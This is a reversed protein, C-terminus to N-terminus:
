AQRKKAYARNYMYAYIVLTLVSLYDMMARFPTEVWTLKLEGTVSAEPTILGFIPDPGIKVPVGGVSATWGPFYFVPLPFDSDGAHKEPVQKVTVPLYDFLSKTQQEKLEAGTLYDADTYHDYGRPFFFPYAYIILVVAVLIITPSSFKRPYLSLLLSIAMVLPLGAWVIFRWPFQVYALPPLLTWVFDSKFHSLFLLGGTLVLLGSILWIETGAQHPRFFFLFVLLIALLVTHVHGVMFPMEDWAEGWLSAAYNWKYERFLQAFSVYHNTHAYYGETLSDSQVLNKEVLAPVIFYAAMGLGVLIALALRALAPGLKQRHVRAILLTWVFALGTLVFSSIIHTLYLVAFLLPLNWVFQSSKAQRYLLLLLLPAFSWALNEASVGRVFVNIAHFPYLTYLISGLFGLDERKTLEKVLLYMSWAALLFTLFTFLNLSLILSLGTLHLVAPIVYIMPPYYNFWPYGYGKGLSDSWRCPLEGRNLCEIFENTRFVQIDDHTYFHSGTLLMRGALAAVFLSLLLFRHTRLWQM